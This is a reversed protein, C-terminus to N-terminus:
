GGSGRVQAYETKTHFTASNSCLADIIEQGAQPTLYSAHSAHTLASPGIVKM